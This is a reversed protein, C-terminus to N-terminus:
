PCTGTTTKTVSPLGTASISVKRETWGATPASRCVKLTAATSASVGTPLFDISGASANVLFGPPLAPQHQIATGGSLVIWGQEWAGACSTGNSSACLTVPSNTKIAESRALYANAVLSNAYSGLKSGLSVDSFYPVGFALLIAMVAITVMLEILTFGAQLPRLLGREQLSGGPRIMGHMM